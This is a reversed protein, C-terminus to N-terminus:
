RKEEFVCYFRQKIPKADGIDIDHEILHTQSPTDSFLVPYSRILSLLEERKEPDLHDILVDPNQLTQSNKLQGQLVSVRVVEEEGGEVFSIGYSATVSAATLASRVALTGEVKSLHRSYYFQLLNM